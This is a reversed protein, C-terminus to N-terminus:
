VLTRLSKDWTGKVNLFFVVLKWKHSNYRSINEPNFNFYKLFTNIWKCAFGNYKLVFVKIFIM